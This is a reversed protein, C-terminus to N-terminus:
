MSANRRKSARSSPSSAPKRNRSGSSSRSSDAKARGGKAGAEQKQKRLDSSLTSRKGSVTRPM